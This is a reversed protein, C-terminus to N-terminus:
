GGGGFSFRRLGSSISNRHHKTPSPSGSRRSGLTTNKEGMMEDNLENTGSFHYKHAQCRLFAEIVRYIRMIKQVNVLCKGSNKIGKKSGDHYTKMGVEVSVLDKTLVPLAPIHPLGHSLCRRLMQRYKSYNKKM